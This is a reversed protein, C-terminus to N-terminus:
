TLTRKAYRFHIEVHIALRGRRHFEYKLIKAHIEIQNHRRGTKLEMEGSEYSWANKRSQRKLRECIFKYLNKSARKEGHKQQETQKQSRWRVIRDYVIHYSM